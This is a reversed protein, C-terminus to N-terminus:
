RMLATNPNPNPRFGVYEWRGCSKCVMRPYTGNTRLYRTGDCRPCQDTRPAIM